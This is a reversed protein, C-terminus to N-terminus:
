TERLSPPTILLTKKKKFRTNKFSWLNFGDSEIEEDRM